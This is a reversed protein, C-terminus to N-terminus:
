GSEDAQQAYKHRATVPKVPTMKLASSTGYNDLRHTSM